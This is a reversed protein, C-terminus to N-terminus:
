PAVITHNVMVVTRGAFANKQWLRAQTPRDLNAFAEDLVLVPRESALAATLAILQRQGGSVNGGGPPLPTEWGMPLSDVWRQLGTLAAAAAIRDPDAGSMLRVNGIISGEFLHVRQPLYFVSGRAQLPTRGFVSVQGRQPMQLGAVLRLLTTKGAGSRGELQVVAGAEVRLSYDEITWPLDDRYRYWVGSVDIAAGAPVAADVAAPLSMRVPTSGLAADIRRIHPMSATVALAARTLGSLARLFGDGLMVAAMLAGITLEGRLCAQAGWLMLGLTAVQYGSEVLVDLWLGTRMKRLGFVQERLLQSMWRGTALGGAGCAAITPAGVILEFLRGQQRAGAVIEEAQLVTVRRILILAALLVVGQWAALLWAAQPLTFALLLWYSVAMVGDLVPTVVMRTVLGAIAEASRLVQTLTGVTRGHLQDFPLHLLNGFCGRAAAGQLAADLMRVVTERLAAFGAQHLGLLALCGTLALLLHRSGDPLADDMVMRTLLPVALGLVQMLVTVGVLRAMLQKERMVAGVLRRLFGRGEPLAPTLDLVAAGELAAWGKRGLALAVGDAGELILRHREVRRLLFAEGTAIVLVTPLPLYRAMAPEFRVPRAALGHRALRQALGHPSADGALGIQEVAASTEINYRALLRVLVAAPATLDTM